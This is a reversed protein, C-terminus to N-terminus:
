NGNELVEIRRLLNQITIGLMNIYNNVRYGMLPVDEDEAGEMIVVEDLLLENTLDPNIQLLDQLIFGIHEEPENKMNFTAYPINKIYEVVSKAYDENTTLNVNEVNSLYQVNEKGRRDSTSISGNTAHISKWRYNSAGLYTQGDNLPAFMRVPEGASSIGSDVAVATWIEGTTSSNGSGDACFYRDEFVLGRANTRNIICQSQIGSSYFLNDFTEFSSIVTESAGGAFSGKRFHSRIELKTTPAIIMDGNGMFRLASANPNSTSTNTYSTNFNFEMYPMRYYVSSSEISANHDYVIWRGYYRGTSGTYSAGGHVNLGSAGMYITPTNTTKTSAAGSSIDRLGMSIVKNSGNYVSYDSTEVKVYKSDVAATALTSGTITGSFTGNTAKMNGWLDIEFNNNASIYGELKINDAKLSINSSVLNFVRDTLEMNSASTGSKVVWSIKDATQTISSSLENAYTEIDRPSPSWDTAKDGKELQAYWVNVYCDTYVNDMRMQLVSDSSIDSDSPVTFTEQFWYTGTQTLYIENGISQYYTEGTQMRFSGGPVGGVYYGFSLTYTQGSNLSKELTYLTNIQNTRYEGYISKETRTDLLLNTGGIQLNAFEGKTTYNASVTSTIANAKQEIASYMQATTSYDNSLKNNTDDIQSQVDNSSIKLSSVDLTVNGYSDIDLTRIGNGNTVSLQKADIYHGRLTGFWGRDLSLTGILADGIAASKVYNSLDSIKVTSAQIQESFATASSHTNIARVRFYWTEDPNAQFLFSSSQGSHILDFTNPTFDKTKSAYLEYTYYVKDDFTWSLEITSFGYVAASLIPTSPLSNPFDGIEGDAGPPGPPGPPGQKGQQNDGTNIIDGLTTRPEGLEMSDYRGRLVDYVTKIVKAKTDIGYRTDKITVIDCLSIKDEIDEYGICKSLPIFEIKFNQKPKDCANNKFYEEGIATLQESTPIEGDEFEESFDMYSTYPHSYNYILDSNAAEGEVTIDESTENDTYTAYPIIRTILESYDEELEFGTLNKAYEISVGNDRGRKEYVYIDTNDRLIEAGTGFTDIISGSEGAIAELCNCRSINYDQANIIDSYGKYKRSFQSNRFITNLAYECSQNEISIEKIFDYALDFSIHRAYVEIKNSMLRVTEYIRFQQNKLTDNADCVIINENILYQALDNNNPYTLAVELIGNREETVLCEICDKLAGYQETNTKDYLLPIMRDGRYM